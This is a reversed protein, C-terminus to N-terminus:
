DLSSKCGAAQGHSTSIYGGYAVNHINITLHQFQLNYPAATYSTYFRDHIYPELATQIFGFRLMGLHTKAAAGNIFRHSSCDITATEKM